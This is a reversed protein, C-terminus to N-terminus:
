LVILSDRSPLVRALLAGSVSEGDYVEWFGEPGGRYRTWDGFQFRWVGYRPVDMFEPSCPMDVFGIVFDLECNKLRSLAASQTTPPLLIQAVSVLARPLESAPSQLTILFQAHLDPVASLEEVCPTQWDEFIADDHLIAFRLPAAHM